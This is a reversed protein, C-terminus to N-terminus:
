NQWVGFRRERLRDALWPELVRGVEFPVPNYQRYYAPLLRRGHRRVIGAAKYGRRHNRFRKEPSLGTLGVYLCLGGPIMEPNAAAFEPDEAAEPDLEVVYVNHHARAWRRIPTAAAASLLASPASLEVTEVGSTAKPVSRRRGSEFFVDWAERSERLVLGIGWDPTRPDKLYVANVTSGITAKENRFSFTDGYVRRL